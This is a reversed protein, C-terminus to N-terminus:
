QGLERRLPEIAALVRVPRPAAVLVEPRLVEFRRKAMQLRGVDVVGADAPQDLHLEALPEARLRDAVDDTQQRREVGVDDLLAERLHVRRAGERPRRPPQYLAGM